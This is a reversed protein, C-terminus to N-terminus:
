SKKEEESLQSNLFITSALESRVKFPLFAEQGKTYILNNEKEDQVGEWSILARDLCFAVADPPLISVEKKFSEILMFNVQELEVESLSRTKFKASEIETTHEPLSKRIKM